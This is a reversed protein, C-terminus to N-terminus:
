GAPRRRLEREIGIIAGLVAAVTLRLINGSSFADGAPGV